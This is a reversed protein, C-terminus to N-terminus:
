YECYFELDEEKMTAQYYKYIFGDEAPDGCFEVEYANIYCDIITGISGIPFDKYEEVSGFARVPRKISVCNFEKFKNEKEAM